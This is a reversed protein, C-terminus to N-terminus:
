ATVTVTCTTTNGNRTKATIVATGAAMGYVKGGMVCAVDMNDSTWQISLDGTITYEIDVTSGVAVTATDVAFTLTDSGTWEFPPIERIKRIIVDAFLPMADHNTHTQDTATLGWVSQAYLLNLPTETALNINYCGYLNCFHRFAEPIYRAQQVKMTSRSGVWTSCLIVPVTPFSRKIADLALNWRGAWKTADSTYCDDISYVSLAGSNTDGLIVICDTDAPINSVRRRFDSAGGANDPYLAQGSIGIITPTIGMQEGVYVPYGMTANATLSDGEFCINRGTWDYGVGVANAIKEDVKKRSYTEYGGFESASNDNITPVYNEGYKLVDKTAM